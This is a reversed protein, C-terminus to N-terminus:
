APARSRSREVLAHRVQPRVAPRRLLRLDQVDRDLPVDPPRQDPRDARRDLPDPGPHLVLGADDRDFTVKVSNANDNNVLNDSGTSVTGNVGVVSVGGSSGAVGPTPNVVHPGPVILPLSDRGTPVSYDDGPDEGPVGNANQDLLNGSLTTPTNNDLKVQFNFDFPNVDNFLFVKEGPVNNVVKITYTQDLLQAPIAPITITNNVSFAVNAAHGLTTGSFLTYQTNDATM